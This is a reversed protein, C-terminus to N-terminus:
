FSILVSLFAVLERSKWSSDLTLETRIILYLFLCWAFSSDFPPLNDVKEVSPVLKLVAICKGEGDLNIEEVYSIPSGCTLAPSVVFKIILDAM